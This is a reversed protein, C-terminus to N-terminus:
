SPAWSVHPVETILTAPMRARDVRRNTRVVSERCRSGTDALTRARSTVAALGFWLHTMSKVYM